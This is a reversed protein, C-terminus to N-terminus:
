TSPSRVVKHILKIREMRLATKVGPGEFTIEGQKLKDYVAKLPITLDCSLCPLFEILQHRRYLCAGYGHYFM